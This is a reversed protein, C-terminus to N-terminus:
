QAVHRAGRAQRVLLRVAEDDSLRPPTAAARRGATEVHLRSQQTLRMSRALALVRGSLEGSLRLLKGYGDPDAIPDAKALAGALRDAQVVLRCYTTLIPVHEAKFWDAPLAGVTRRWVDRERAPLGKPTDLLPATYRIPTPTARAAASLRPM